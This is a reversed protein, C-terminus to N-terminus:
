ERAADRSSKNAVQRAIDAQVRFVDGPVLSADFRSQWVHVDDSVRILQPTVRAIGAGGATRDTRVTGELIYDAGLAEGLEAISLERGKFRKASTRSVVRLGRIEALRSTIEDTIGAAFPEDDPTSLNEFPLVALRPAAATTPGGSAVRNQRWIAGAILVAIAAGAAVWRLGSPAKTRVIPENPAALAAAFEQTSAFRDAPVVALARAVAADVAPSVSRTASVRRATETMRRALVTQSTPGTFPTEGVLMEYTLRALSYVDTRADLTREGSAQEPSIYAATGLILGTATINEGGAAQIARAIGFDAVVAQGSEFLINEPKVDRHLVGRAHAHALAGAVQRTIEIASEVALQREHQLRDRLTGGEAYPMVYFLQGEVEGSDLLPLIHPHNPGATIRVERLFREAGLASAVEPRLVKLAVKRDHRVDHALYVTAMGGAGLEREVSYHGALASTLREAENM